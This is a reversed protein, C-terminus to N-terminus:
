GDKANANPPERVIGSAILQEAPVVTAPLLSGPAQRIPKLLLSLVNVTVLIWFKTQLSLTPMVDLGQGVYQAALNVLDPLSAILFGGMNVLFTWAKWFLPVMRQNYWLYYRDKWDLNM